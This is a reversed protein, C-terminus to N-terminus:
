DEDDDDDWGGCAKEYHTMCEELGNDGCLKKISPNEKFVPDNMVCPMLINAMCQQGEDEDDLEYCPFLESFHEGACRISVEKVKENDFENEFNELTTEAEKCSLYTFDDKDDSCAFLGAILLLASVAPIASFLKRKM